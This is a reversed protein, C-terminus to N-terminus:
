LLRRNAEAVKKEAQLRTREPANRLVQKWSREEIPTFKASLAKFAEPRLMFLLRPNTVFLRFIEAFWEADNPAYSTISAETSKARLLKSFDGFYAGRKESMHWDVHHGLEHCVVGYPTRDIVYGPWSRASFALGPSACRPLCIFIRGNRWFACANVQWYEKSVIHLAPTPMTNARCFRLVLDWGQMCLDVKKPLPTAEKHKHKEIM